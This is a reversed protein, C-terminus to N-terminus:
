VNKNGWAEPFCLEDKYQTETNVKLQVPEQIQDRSVEAFTRFNFVVISFSAYYFYVKSM